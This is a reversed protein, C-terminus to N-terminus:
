YGDADEEVEGGEECELSSVSGSDSAYGRAIARMEADTWHAIESVPNHVARWALMQPSPDSHHHRLGRRFVISGRHPGSYILWCPRKSPDGSALWQPDFPDEHEEGRVVLLNRYAQGHEDGNRM